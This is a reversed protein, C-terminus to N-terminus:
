TVFVLLAFTLAKAILTPVPLSFSTGPEGKEIEKPPIPPKAM